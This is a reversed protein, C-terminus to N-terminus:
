LTKLYDITVKNKVEKESFDFITDFPVHINAGEGILFKTGELYKDDQSCILFTKDILSQFKPFNYLLWQAELLHDNICLDFLLGGEEEEQYIELGLTVLKKLASYEGRILIEYICDNDVEKLFSKDISILWVLCKPNDYYMVDMEEENYEDLIHINAGLAHLYKCGELNGHCFATRFSEDIDFYKPNLNHLWKSLELNNHIFSDRFSDRILSRETDYNVYISEFTIRYSDMKLSYLWQAIEINEYTCSHLFMLFFLVGNHLDYETEICIDIDLSILFKVIEVHNNICAEVFCYQGINLQEDHYKTLDLGKEKLWIAIDLKGNKCAIIFFLEINDLQPILSHLYKVVELTSFECAKLLDKGTATYRNISKLLDIMGHYIAFTSSTCEKLDENNKILPELIKKYELGIDSENKLRLITNRFITTDNVKFLINSYTEFDKKNYLLILLEQIKKCDLYKMAEICSILDKKYRKYNGMYVPFVAHISQLMQPNDKFEEDITSWCLEIENEKELNSLVESDKVIKRFGLTFYYDRIDFCLLNRLKIDNFDKFEVIINCFSNKYNSDANCTEPDVYKYVIETKLGTFVFSYAQRRYGEKCAGHVIIKTELDFAIEEINDKPISPFEFM